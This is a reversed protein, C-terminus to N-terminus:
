ESMSERDLTVSYMGWRLLRFVVRHQIFGELPKRTGRVGDGRGCGLGHPAHAPVEPWGRNRRDDARWSTVVARRFRRRAAHRAHVTSRRGPLERRACAQLTR